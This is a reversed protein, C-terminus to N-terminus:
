VAIYTAIATLSASHLYLYFYRSARPPSLYISLFSCARSCEVSPTARLTSNGLNNLFKRREPRVLVVNRGFRLPTM